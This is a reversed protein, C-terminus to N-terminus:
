WVYVRENEFILRLLEAYDVNKKRLDVTQVERRQPSELLQEALEDARTIIHLEQIM